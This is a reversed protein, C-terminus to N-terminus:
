QDEGRVHVMEADLDARLCAPMRCAALASRLIEDCTPCRNM